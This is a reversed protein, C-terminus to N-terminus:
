YFREYFTFDYRRSENLSAIDRSEELLFDDVRWSAEGSAARNEALYLEGSMSKEQNLFRILFSVSGDIETRGGGIRYRDPKLDNMETNLRSLLHDDIGSFVSSTRNSRILADLFSNAFLWATYPATGRGLEGIVIDLPYRPTEERRPHRVSDPPFMGGDQAKIGIVPLLLLMILVIIINSAYRGPRM